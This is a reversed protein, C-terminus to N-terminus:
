PNQQWDGANQEYDATIETDKSDAVCFLFSYLLTILYFLNVGSYCAIFWHRMLSNHTATEDM